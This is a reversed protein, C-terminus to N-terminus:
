QRSVFDFSRKAFSKYDKPDDHEIVFHRCRTNKLAGLIRKWDMTGAGVDTQGHEDRKEGKPANDKIHVATIREGHLKLWRLVNEGAFAVWALDCQWELM